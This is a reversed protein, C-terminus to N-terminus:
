NEQWGSVIIKKIAEIDKNNLIGKDSLLTCLIGITDISLSSYRDTYKRLDKSILNLTDYAESYTLKDKDHLTIDMTPLTGKSDLVQKLRFYDIFSLLSQHKSTERDM